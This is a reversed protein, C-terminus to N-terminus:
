ISKENPHQLVSLFKKVSPNSLSGKKYYIGYSLPQLHEIPICVIDSYVESQLDPLVAFGYKARVMSLAVPIDDCYFTNNLLFVQELQRQIQFVAFPLDSSNCVIIKENNLEELRISHRDAYPHDTPLVCCIYTDFLDIYKVDSKEYISEQYGFVLDIQNEMFLNVIHKHPIVRLYPHVDPLEQRCKQLINTFLELDSGICCGITLLETESQIHQRAKQTAARMHAFIQRADILFSSGHDTLTVSRTTRQFLQVGLEEELSHIQRSISPQSLNM